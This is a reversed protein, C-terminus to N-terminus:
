RGTVHSGTGNPRLEQGPRDPSAGREGGEVPKLRSDAPVNLEMVVPPLPKEQSASGTLRM